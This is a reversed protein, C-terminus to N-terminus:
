AYYVDRFVRDVIKDRGIKLAGLEADSKAQLSRVSALRRAGMSNASVTQMTRAIFGRFTSKADEASLGFSPEATNQYSM